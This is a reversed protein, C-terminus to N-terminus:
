LKQETKGEFESVIGSISVIIKAKSAVLDGAKLFRKIQEIGEEGKGYRWYFEGRFEEILLWLGKKEHLKRDEKFVLWPTKAKVLEIEERLDEGM